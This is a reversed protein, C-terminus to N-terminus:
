AMYAHGSHGIIVVREFGLKQRVGEVDDILTDLEFSRPHIVQPPPAFGRHDVFAIRLHRRLNPSFARSYYLASGIVIAPRGAGELRSRLAFGDTEFTGEDVATDHTEDRSETGSM